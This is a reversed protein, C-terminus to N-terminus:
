QHRAKGTAGGRQDRTSAGTDAPTAPPAASPHKAAYMIEVAAPRGSQLSVVAQSPMLQNGPPSIDIISAVPMEDAVAIAVSLMGDANTAGLYKGSGGEGVNRVFVNASALPTKRESMAKVSLGVSASSLVAPPASFLGRTYAIKPTSNPHSNMLLRM